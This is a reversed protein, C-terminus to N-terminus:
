ATLRWGTLRLALRRPRWSEHARHPAAPRAPRPNGPRHAAAGGAAVREPQSEADHRPAERHAVGVRAAQARRGPALAPFRRAEQRRPRRCGAGPDLAPRPEEPSNAGPTGRGRGMLHTRRRRPQGHAAAEEAELHPLARALPWPLDRPPSHLPAYLLALGARSRTDEM